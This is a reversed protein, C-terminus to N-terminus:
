KIKVGKMYYTMVILIGFIAFILMLTFILYDYNQIGYGIINSNFYLQITTNQTLNIVLNINNYNQSIITIYYVGPSLGIIQVDGSVEYSENFSNNKNHINIVYPQNMDEPIFTVSLSANASLPILLLGLVILALIKKDM